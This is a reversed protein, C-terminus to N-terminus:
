SKGGFVAKVASRVKHILAAESWPPLANQSNWEIMLALAQAENGATAEVARCAARFTTRDGGSGEVAVIKSLYRRVREIAEEVPLEQPVVVPKPKEFGKLMEAPFVPLETKRILKDKWGYRHGTKPHISPACVVTGHRLIDVDLGGIKIRNSGEEDTQFYEHLGRSTISTQPSTLFFFPGQNPGDKDVAVLGFLKIGLNLDRRLLLRELEVENLEEFEPLRKKGDLPVPTYGYGWLQRSAYAIFERQM